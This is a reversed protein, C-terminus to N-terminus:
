VLGGEIDEDDFVECDITIDILGATAASVDVVEFENFESPISDRGNYQGVSVPQQTDVDRAWVEAESEQNIVALLDILKM